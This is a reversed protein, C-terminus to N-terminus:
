HSKKFDGWNFYFPNASEVGDINEISYLIRRTFTKGAISWLNGMDNKIIVLDGKLAKHITVSDEFIGDRLGTNIFMLAVSFTVGIISILFRSKTFSLQRWSIYIQDLM